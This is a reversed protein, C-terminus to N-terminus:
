TNTAEARGAAEEGERFFVARRKPMVQPALYTSAWELLGMKRNRLLPPVCSEQQWCSASLEEKKNM